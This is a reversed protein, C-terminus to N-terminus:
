VNAMVDGERGMLWLVASVEGALDTEGRINSTDEAKWTRRDPRACTRSKNWDLLKRRMVMIGSLPTMLFM